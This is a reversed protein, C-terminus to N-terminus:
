SSRHCLGLLHFHFFFDWANKKNKNEKSNVTGGCSKGTFCSLHKPREKTVLIKEQNGAVLNALSIVGSIPTKKPPSIKKKTKRWVIQWHFFGSIPKKKTALISEQNGAVLNALSVVGSIPTKKTALNKEQNEAVRNALSFFWSIPNKQHCSDKRPKGGCSKGTFFFWKNNKKQHCFDRCKIMDAKEGVSKACFDVTKKVLLFTLNQWLLIDGSKGRWFTMLFPPINVSGHGPCLMVIMVPGLALM